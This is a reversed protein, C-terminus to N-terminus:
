AGIVWANRDYALRRTHEDGIWKLLRYRGAQGSTTTTAGDPEPLVQDRLQWERAGGRSVTNCWV